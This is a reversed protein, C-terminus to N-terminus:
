RTGLNLARNGALHNIARVLDDQEMLFYNGIRKGPFNVTLGGGGAGGGDAMDRIVDAHKAPLVMEREHLQTMPNVGAPIDYGNAASALGVFGMAAASMAAGFAPAGANIPWPAGAWSAIGAAGAKGAESTVEAVATTRNLAMMMLKNALWKAAMQALMQTFVQLTAQGMARMLQGVTRISTGIQNFVNAWAGQLSNGIQMTQQQSQVAAQNRIQAMAAQHQVELAELQGSVQAYAVPDREPDLLAQRAQMYAQKIAFRQEEFGEEQALMEAQTIQGLNMQQQASAQATDVDALAAAEARDRTVGDLQAQQKAADRIIDIKLKSTTALISVTDKSTLDATRLIEEWYALEQQKTYERLADTQVALLKEQVLRQQFAPMQSEEPKEARAEPPHHGGGTFQVSPRAPATSGRGEHGYDTGQMSAAAPEQKIVGGARLASMFPSFTAISKFTDWLLTGEKKSEKFKDILDNLRPLLDAAIGRAVNLSETRLKYFEKNLTEAQQATESSVTGVLESQEALDKLFPAAEKASRGTLEMVLRAKNGDDEFQALALAIKHVADAPDLDKLDKVSLGIAKLALSFNDTGDADKLGMQLKLIVASVTELSGGTRLAVQELASIKEISAGSADALDNLDDLSNVVGRSFDVLAGLTMGAIVGQLGAFALSLPNLAGTTKAEVEKMAVGTRDKLREFATRMRATQQEVAAAGANMGAQLDDTKATIKVQAERDNAM